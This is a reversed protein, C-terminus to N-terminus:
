NGRGGGTKWEKKTGKELKQLNIEIMKRVMITNNKLILIFRKILFEIM